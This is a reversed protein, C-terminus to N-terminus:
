LTLVSHSFSPQIQTLTAPSLFKSASTLSLTRLQRRSHRKTPPTSVSEERVVSEPLGRDVYGRYPLHRDGHQLSVQQTQALIPVQHLCLFLRRESGPGSPDTYIYISIYISQHASISRFPSQISYVLLPTTNVIINSSRKCRIPSRIKPARQKSVVIRHSFTSSV